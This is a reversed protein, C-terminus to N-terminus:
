SESKGLAYAAVTAGFVFAARASGGDSIVAALVLVLLGVLGTGWQWGSM